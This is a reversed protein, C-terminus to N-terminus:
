VTVEEATLGTVTEPDVTDGIAAQVTARDSVNGAKDIVFISYNYTNEDDLGADTFSETAFDIIETVVTSGDEFTPYSGDDIKRKIVIKDLGSIVEVPSLEEAYDSLNGAADRARIRYMKSMSGNDAAPNTWTLQIDGTGENETVSSSLTAVTDPAAVDINSEIVQLESTEELVSWTSGGDESVEVVYPNNALGETLTASVESTLTSTNGADDEAEVKYFYERGQDIVSDWTVAAQINANDGTISPNAPVEPAMDDGAAAGLFTVGQQSGDDDLVEVADYYYDVTVVDDVTLASDFEVKGQIYNITFGSTEETGNVYVTVPYNIGDNIWNQHGATYILYDGDPTLEEGIVEKINSQEAPQDIEMIKDSGTTVGSLIDRYVNYKITDDSNRDFLLKARQPM